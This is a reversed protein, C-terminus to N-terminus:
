SGIRLWHFPVDLLRSTHSLFAPTVEQGSTNWLVKGTVVSYADSFLESCVLTNNRNHNLSRALKWFGRKAVGKLDWLRKYGYKEGLRAMATIAIQYGQERDVDPDRRVRLLSHGIHDYMPMCSVGAAGAECIIDGWVYIAAHHWRADESDYGGRSQMTVIRNTLLSPKVASFLVLDGPQWTNTDPFRGFARLSQPIPGSPEWIGTSRPDAPDVFFQAAM